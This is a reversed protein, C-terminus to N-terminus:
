PTSAPRRSNPTRDREPQVRLTRGRNRGAPASAQTVQESLGLVHGQLRSLLADLVDREAPGVIGALSANFEAARAFARRYMARGAETALVTQGRGTAAPREVLGRERLGTLARSVRPRDLGALGAIASASLGDHEVVLALLHWHRRTIGLEGEFIRVMPRSASRTIVSLRYLLLEDMRQPHLLTDRPAAAAPADPNARPLPM